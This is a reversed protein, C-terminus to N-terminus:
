APDGSRQAQAQAQAFSAVLKRTAAACAWGLLLGATVDAPFHAGLAVRSWAVGLGILVTLARGPWGLLPWISAVVVGAYTAHGSPLTYESDAAGIVRIAMDHVALAPRPFAFLVKAAAAAAMAAFLAAAFRFPAGDAESGRAAQTHRRWALLLALVLPAGWYSGIATLLHALWVWEPQLASNVAVFLAVNAGDWDYLWHRLWGAAELIVPM